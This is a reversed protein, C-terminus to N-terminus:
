KAKRRRSFGLGALGIGLLALTAPEPVTIEPVTFNASLYTGTSIPQENWTFTVFDSGFAMSVGTLNTVYTVGTLAQGFDLSTLQLSVSDTSVTSFIGLFDSTSRIGFSLDGFDFFQNDYFSGEEGAGVVVSAVGTDGVGVYRIGVTDGILGAFAVSPAVLMGALLVKLFNHKM